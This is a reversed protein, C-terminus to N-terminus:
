HSFQDAAIFVWKFYLYVMVIVLVGSLILFSLCSLSGIGAKARKTQSEYESQFVNALRELAPVIDGTQQATMMLGSYEYPIIRSAEFAAAIGQGQQLVNGAVQLQSSIVYSPVANAAARWATEPAIGASSLRRLNLLFFRLSESHIRGRGKGSLNFAMQHRWSIFQPMSLARRVLWFIIYGGVFFPTIKYLCVDWYARLLIMVNASISIATPSETPTLNSSEKFIVPILPIGYVLTIIGNWTVLRPLWWLRRYSISEQYFDALDGCAAPMYGGIEGARITGVAHPSFIYPYRAMVQSISEGRLAGDHIAIVAKKLFKTRIRDAMSRMAETPVVGANLLSQLQSFFLFLMKDNSLPTKVIESHPTTDTSVAQSQPQTSQDNPQNAQILQRLTFGREKLRVEVEQPSSAKITGNIERGNKDLAQYHYFAMPM